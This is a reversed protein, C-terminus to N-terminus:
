IELGDMLGGYFKIWFYIVIGGILIFVGLMILTTLVTTAQKIAHDAEDQHYQAAKKLQEDLKGSQEGIALMEFALPTMLTSERFSDVLSKGNKIHPISKLLDEEIYPNDTVQASKTICQVIGLGSTIMLSLSRFFRAMGLKRTVRSMPWIFTSVLGTIWKLIGMRSLAVALVILVTFVIVAKIQFQTYQGFYETVGAVGGGSGDIGAMMVKLMGIAFTGLFWCLCLLIMPYALQGMIKRKLALKEEYYDALDNLMIDLNGSQEGSGLLNAFFSSLYESQKLTAEGLTMGNSLDDSIELLIRKVKHNKSNEGVHEIVRIIPLGASYATAIQRCVPVMEKSSLQNSFLGM